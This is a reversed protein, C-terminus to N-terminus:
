SDPFTLPLGRFEVRQTISVQAQIDGSSMAINNTKDFGIYMHVGVSPNSGTSTWAIDWNDEGLDLMDTAYQKHDMFMNHRFLPEDEDDGNAFWAKAGPHYTTFNELQADVASGTLQTQMLTLDHNACPVLQLLIKGQGPKNFWIISIETSIVRFYDYLAVIQDHFVPQQTGWDGMPDTITFPSVYFADAALVGDGFNGFGTHSTLTTVLHQPLGPQDKPLYTKRSVSNNQDIATLASM